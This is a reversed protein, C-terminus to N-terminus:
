RGPAEALERPLLERYLDAEAREVIDLDFRAVRARGASAAARAAAPDALVEAIRAALQEADGAPFRLAGTGALLENLQAADSAVVPVGAALAEALAFPFGEYRSAIVYCDSLHLFSAIEEMPRFGTIVLRGDLGSRAAEGQVADRLSGDGVLLLRVEPRRLRAVATVLTLPDKEPDLRGVAVVVPAAPPIGCRTRTQEEREPDAAALAGIPLRNPVIRVREPAAGHAVASSAVHENVCFIRDARALSFRALAGLVRAAPRDLRRLVETVDTHVAVVCPCRAVRAALLAAAGQVFPNYARVLDVRERRAIRAVQAAFWAFSGAFAAARMLAPASASVARTRYVTLDPRPQWKGGRASQYAVVVRDFVCAPSFASQDPIRGFKEAYAELPDNTLLLACSGPM